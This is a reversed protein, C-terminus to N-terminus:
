HSTFGQLWNLNANLEWNDSGNQWNPDLSNQSATCGGNRMYCHDAVGSAPQNKNVIIWGSGNSQLCSFSGSACTFGTLSQMNTQQLSQTNGTFQDNVGNVARLRDSPLTRNGNAMCSNLNFTSYMVGDGMGYAAQVRSDFNKALTAIVAGQSFGAVVIGKTCDAKARDCLTEVASSASNPNFICAAKSSIQSCSGFLGSDYQITGAVYGLNAMGQVAATASANNFSETTGVMYLFVPYTGDASPEEGNISFSTNCTTNNTGQYTATFSTTQALAPATLLMASLAGCFALKRRRSGGLTAQNERMFVTM